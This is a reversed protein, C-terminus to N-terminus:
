DKIVFTHIFSTLITNNKIIQNLIEKEPKPNIEADM